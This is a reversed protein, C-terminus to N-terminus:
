EHEGNAGASDNGGEKRKEKELEEELEDLLKSIIESTELVRAPVDEKGLELANGVIWEQIPKPLSLVEQRKKLEVSKYPKRSNTYVYVWPTSFDCYVFREEEVKEAASMPLRYLKYEKRSCHEEM